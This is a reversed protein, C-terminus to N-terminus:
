VDGNLNHWLRRPGDFFRSVAKVWGPPQRLPTEDVTAAYVIQEFSPPGISLNQWLLDANSEAGHAAQYAAAMAGTRGVGAGCHVFVTGDAREVVELVQEVQPWTPTQGDRIPIRVLDLGLADLLEVPPQQFEEARLDIVVEVDRAALSRYGEPTPARGRWVQEDVARARPIGALALDDDPGMARAILHAALITLNGIGLLAAVAVVVAGLRFLPGRPRRRRGGPAGVSPTDRDQGSPINRDTTTTM